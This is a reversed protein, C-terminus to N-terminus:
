IGLMSTSGSLRLLVCATLVVVLWVSFIPLVPLAGNVQAIASARTPPRERVHM